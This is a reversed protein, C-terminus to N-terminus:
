WSMTLFGISRPVTASLSSFPTYWVSGSSCASMCRMQSLQVSKLSGSLSMAPAPRWRASKQRRTPDLSASSAAVLAAAGAGCICAMAGPGCGATCTCCGAIPMAAGGGCTAQPPMGGVAGRAVTRM